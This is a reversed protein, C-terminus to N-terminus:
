WQLDYSRIIFGLWRDMVPAILFAFLSANVWLFFRLWGTPTKFFRFFEYLLILSFPFVLVMYFFHADVFWPSGIAVAIYTFLYLGIHYFTREKGIQAPLVPIGAKKYDETYKIALAWFHPMQWLFLILFLYVCEVGFAAIDRTSFYGILVPMAGPIAGLVAGFTMYPKWWLTYFGNYLILTFVGITAVLPKLTFLIVLGFTLMWLSIRFGLIWSIQGSPIPRKSTRPMKADLNSEQVQNLACSGGALLIFGISFLVFHSFSFSQGPLQGLFYGILACIYSFFVIGSKTLKLGIKLHKQM